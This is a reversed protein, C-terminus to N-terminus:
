TLYLIYAHRLLFYLIQLPVDKIMVFNDSLVNGLSTAKSYKEKSQCNFFFDSALLIPILVMRYTVPVKLM